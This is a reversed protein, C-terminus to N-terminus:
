AVSGLGSRQLVEGKDVGIFRSAARTGAVAAALLGAPYTKRRADAAPHQVLKEPLGDIGVEMALVLMEALTGRVVHVTVGLAVQGGLPGAARGTAACWTLVDFPVTM